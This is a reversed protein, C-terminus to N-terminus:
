YPMFILDLCFLLNQVKKELYIKGVSLRTMFSLIQTKNERPLTRVHSTKDWLLLIEFNENRKTYLQGMWSTRDGRKSTLFRCLLIAM